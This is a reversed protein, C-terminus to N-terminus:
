LVDGALIVPLYKKVTNIEIQISKNTKDIDNMMDKRM